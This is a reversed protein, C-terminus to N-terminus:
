TDALLRNASLNTRTRKLTRRNLSQHRAFKCSVCFPACLRAREASSSTGVATSAIPMSFPMSSSGVTCPWHISLAHTMANFGVAGAEPELEVAPAAAVVMLSAVSLTSASHLSLMM